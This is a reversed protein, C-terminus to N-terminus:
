ADGGVVAYFKSTNRPGGMHDLRIRGQEHLEKLVKHITTVHIGTREAVQDSNFVGDGNWSRLTAMVQELRAESIRYERATKKKPEAKEPDLIALLKLGKTRMAKLTSLEAEMEGIREEIMTLEQSIPDVAQRMAQEFHNSM